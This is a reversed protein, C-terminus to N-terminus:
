NARLAVCYFICLNLIKNFILICSAIRLIIEVQKVKNLM